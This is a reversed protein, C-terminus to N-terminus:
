TWTLMLLLVNTNFMSKEKAKEKMNLIMDSEKWVYNSYNQAYRLAKNIDKAVHEFMDMVRAPAESKRPNMIFVLNFMTMGGEANADDSTFSTGKPIEKKGAEAEVGEGGVQGPSETIVAEEASAKEGEPTQTAIEEEDRRKRRKERKKKKWRGDERVHMPYTVFTLPDLTLEFCRKHFGRSPTLISALDKTSFVDLHEWPVVSEGEPLEYHQDMGEHAHDRVHRRRSGPGHRDPPAGHPSNGCAALNLSSVSSNLVYESDELEDESTEASSNATSPCAALETGYPPRPTRHNPTLHPPYHFVFRPGDKSRVILAVGLLSPDFSM